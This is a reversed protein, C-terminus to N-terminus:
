TPRYKTATTPGTSFDGPQFPSNMIMILIIILIIKIVMIMITVMKTVMTQM